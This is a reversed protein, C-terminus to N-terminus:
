AVEHHSSSFACVHDRRWRVQHYNMLKLLLIMSAQDHM